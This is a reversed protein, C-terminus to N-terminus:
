GILARHLHILGQQRRASTVLRGWSPDLLLRTMERTLENEQSKGLRRYLDLYDEAGDGSLDYLFPLVVNVVLDRGRDKGISALGEGDGAVVLCDTLAKLTNSRSAGDAARQLPGVLGNQAYRVAWGAAGAMRRLPHNVPRLRSLHWERRSMAPGLGRPPGEVAAGSDQRAVLGSVASLWGQVAAARERGPLGQSKQVLVRWPARQALKLFPQQNNKYGLGEMLAEYLTQDLLTQDLATQDPGGGTDGTNGPELTVQDALFLQFRRSKFYFRQDGASDLLDGAEAATRPRSFGRRGLLEWLGMGVAFGGGPEEESRRQSQALLGALSVVPTDRGSQLGTSPSDVELAAHVVEGNYNPDQSHGHSHWDKQRV